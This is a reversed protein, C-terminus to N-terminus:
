RVRGVSNWKAVTREQSSGALSFSKARTMSPDSFTFILWRKGSSWAAAACSASAARWVVPQVM